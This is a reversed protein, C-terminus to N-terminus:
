EGLVTKVQRYTVLDADSVHKQYNAPDQNFAAQVKGYTDLKSQGFTCALLDSKFATLISIAHNSQNLQDGSLNNRPPLSGLDRIAAIADRVRANDILDSGSADGWYTVGAKVAGSHSDASLGGPESLSARISFILVAAGFFAFFVGPGIRRMTVSAGYGKGAFEGESAVALHFLRYGLFISLGAILVILIRETGRFVLPDIGM